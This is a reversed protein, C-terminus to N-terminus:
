VGRRGCVFIYYRDGGSYGSGSWVYGFKGVADAVGNYYKRYGGAPFRLGSALEQGAPVQYYGYHNSAPKGSTVLTSTFDGGYSVGPQEALLRIYEHITPLRWNGDVWGQASIYQCIDGTGARADFGTIHDITDNVFPIDAWKYDYVGTPSYIIHGQPYQGATYTADTGSLAAPSIAVLSGWQFLVGQSRAPIAVNGAPTTAFTLKTGDWVINSHAFSASVPFDQGLLQLPLFLLFFLKLKDM